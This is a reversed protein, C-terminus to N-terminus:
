RRKEAGEDERQWSARKNKNWWRRWSEPDPQEVGSLRALASSLPAQVQAYRDALIAGEASPQPVPQTGQEHEVREAANKAATLVNLVKEFLEKRLAPEAEEFSGLAEGAAAVLRADEHELHETLPEAARPARTRGLSLLLERQLLVEQEYAEHGVWRALVPVGDEGLAGLARAAAHLVPDPEPKAGRGPRREVFARALADAIAQRDKPGSRAAATELNAVIAVLESPPTARKGVLEEFRAVELAVEPRADESRPKPGECRVPDPTGAVAPVCALLLSCLM